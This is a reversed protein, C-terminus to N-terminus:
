ERIFPERGAGSEDNADACPRIATVLADRRGPRWAPLRLCPPDPRTPSSRFDLCSENANPAGPSPARTSSRAAPM